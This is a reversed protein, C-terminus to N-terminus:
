RLKDIRSNTVILFIILKKISLVIKLSGQFGIESGNVMSVLIWQLPFEEVSWKSKVDESVKKYIRDGGQAM